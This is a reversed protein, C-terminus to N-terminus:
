ILPALLPIAVLNAVVVMLRTLNPVRAARVSTAVLAIAALVLVWSGHSIVSAILLVMFATIMGGAAIAVRAAKGLPQTAWEELVLHSATM